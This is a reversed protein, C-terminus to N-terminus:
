PHFTEGRELMAVYQAIRRARTEPKAATQLRYLIAYRNQSKLMAFFAAADPSDHLAAQFDDPVTASGPSDYARAWRGDQRAAEVAALGPARMAGARTLREVHDCNIKSWTSKAGRPTFKQLWSAADHSKKQGDIWGYCLAADLAEAYSPSRLDTGKKALQLWVGRATAHHDALWAAWADQDAFLLVPYDPAAPPM